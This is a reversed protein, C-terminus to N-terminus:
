VTWAKLFVIGMVSMSAGAGTYCPRRIFENFGAFQKLGNARTACRLVVM